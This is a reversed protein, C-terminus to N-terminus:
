VLHQSPACKGDETICRDWCPLALCLTLTCWRAARRQFLETATRAIVVPSRASPFWHLWRLRCLQEEHARQTAPAKEQHRGAGDRRGTSDPETPSCCCASARSDPRASWAWHHYTSELRRSNHCGSHQHPSHQTLAKVATSRDHSKRSGFAPLQRKHVAANPAPNAVLEGEPNAAAAAGPHRLVPQLRGRRAGCGAAAAPRVRSGVGAAAGARSLM